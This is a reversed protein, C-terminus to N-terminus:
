TTNAVHNGRHRRLAKRQSRRPVRTMMTTEPELVPDRGIVALDDARLIKMKAPDFIIYHENPKLKNARAFAPPIRLYLSDGVKRVM